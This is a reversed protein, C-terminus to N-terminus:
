SLFHFCGFKKWTTPTTALESILMSLNRNEGLDAHGILQMFELSFSPPTRSYKKSPLVIKQCCTNKEPFRMVTKCSCFPYMYLLVDLYGREPPLVGHTSSVRHFLCSTEWVFRLCPINYRCGGERILLCHNSVMVSRGCLINMNEVLFFM